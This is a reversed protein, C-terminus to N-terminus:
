ECESMDQLIITIFLYIFLYGRAIECRFKKNLFGVFFGLVVFLLLLFM